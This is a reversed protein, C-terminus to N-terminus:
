KLAKLSENSLRWARMQSSMCFGRTLGRTLPIGWSGGDGLLNVGDGILNVGDGSLNVGDGPLNVSFM